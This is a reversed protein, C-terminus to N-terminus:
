FESLINSSYRVLYRIVYWNFLLCFIMQPCPTIFSMALTATSYELWLSSSGRKSKSKAQVQATWNAVEERSNSPVGSTWLSYYFLTIPDLTLMLITLLLSLGQKPVKIGRV